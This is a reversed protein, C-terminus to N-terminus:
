RMGGFRWMALMRMVRDQYNPDMPNFQPEPQRLQRVDKVDARASKKPKGQQASYINGLVNPLEAGLQGWGPPEDPGHWGEIHKRDWDYKNWAKKGFNAAQLVIAAITLPDM